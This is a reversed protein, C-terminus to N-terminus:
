RPVFHQAEIGVQFFLPLSDRIRYDNLYLVRVVGGLNIILKACAVCPLHTCYVIKPASRPANCNVVANCEAHICGCSGVAEPGTKDCHNALGSANGNYGVGYVYRYDDSTIVAGVNLRYCTSRRSMSECLGIYVEDFSPRPVPKPSALEVVTPPPPEERPIPIRISPLTKSERDHEGCRLKLPLADKICGGPHCCKM